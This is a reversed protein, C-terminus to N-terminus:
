ALGVRHSPDHKEFTVVTEYLHGAKWCSDCTPLDVVIEKQELRLWLGGSSYPRRCYSCTLDNSYPNMGFKVRLGAARDNM